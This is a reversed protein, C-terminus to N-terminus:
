KILDILSLNIDRIFPALIFNGFISVMSITDFGIRLEVIIFLLLLLSSWKFLVPVKLIFRLDILLLLYVASFLFGAVNFFRDVPPIDGYINYIIGFIFAFFLLVDYVGKFPLKRRYKIFHIYVIEFFLLFLTYRLSVYFNLVVSKSNFVKDLYYESTYSKFKGSFGSPLLSSFNSFSSFLVPEVFFSLLFVINLFFLSMRLKKRFVLYGAIIPLAIIFSWHVLIALSSAILYKMNKKFAFRLLGWLFIQAATWFRFANIGWFPIILFLISICLFSSYDLSFQYREIVYWINNVYILGFFLAWIMTMVYVDSSLRSVLYILVNELVDASARSNSNSYLVLDAFDVDHKDAMNEFYSIRRFFDMNDEDEPFSVTFGYFMIFTLVYYKAKNTRFNKLGYFLAGFPYLLGRIIFIM